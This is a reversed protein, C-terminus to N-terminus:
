SQESPRRGLGWDMGWCTPENDALIRIKKAILFGQKVCFACATGLVSTRFVLTCCYGGWCPIYMMLSSMHCRKNRLMEVQREQRPIRHRAMRHCGSNVWRLVLTAKRIFEQSSRSGSQDTSWSMLRVLALRERKKEGGRWQLSASSGFLSVNALIVMSAAVTCWSILKTKPRWANRVRNLPM